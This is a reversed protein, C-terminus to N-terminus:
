ESVKGYWAPLIVLWETCGRSPQEGDVVNFCDCLSLSTVFNTASNLDLSLRRLGCASPTRSYPASSSMHTQYPPLLLLILFRQTRFIM